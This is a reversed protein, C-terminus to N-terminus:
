KRGGKPQIWGLGEVAAIGYNFLHLCKRPMAKDGARPPPPCLSKDDGSTEVCNNCSGDKSVTGIRISM